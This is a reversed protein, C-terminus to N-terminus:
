AAKGGQGWILPTQGIWQENDLQDVVFEAVDARSISSGQRRSPDGSAGIAGSAVGDTLMVPRVITWDLGSSRILAEQRDKDEYVKRLVLPQIIRDYIWGGHGRSDGAGVGTIAILRKVGTSRMSAVLERTAESLVTVEAFPSTPAGLASLVADCDALAATLVEPDRADGVIIRATGFDNTQQRVVAVVSHGRKELTSVIKRGTGGTAGLVLINM